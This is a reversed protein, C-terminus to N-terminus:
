LKSKDFLDKYKFKTKGYGQCYDLYKVQTSRMNHITFSICIYTLPRVHLESYDLLCSFVVCSFVVYFKCKSTWFQAFNEKRFIALSSSPVYCLM